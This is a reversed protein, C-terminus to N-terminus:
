YPEPEYHDLDMNMDPDSFENPSDTVTQEYNLFAPHVQDYNQFEPNAFDPDAYNQFDPEIPTSELTTTLECVRSNPLPISSFPNLFTPTIETKLLISELCELRLTGM